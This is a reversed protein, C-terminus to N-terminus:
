FIMVSRHRCLRRDRVNYTCVYWSADRAHMWGVAYKEDVRYWAKECIFM